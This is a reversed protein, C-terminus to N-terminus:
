NSVKQSESGLAECAMKVAILPLNERAKERKIIRRAWDRNGVSKQKQTLGSVADEVAEHSVRSQPPSPLAPARKPVPQWEGKELEAALVKRWRRELSEWSGNRMDFAGITVASWFVAPHSWADTGGERKAMQEIAEHFAEEADLPPRCMERFEPLTPPFKAARCAFVGRAIEEGTLDGLDNAWSQKVRDRPFAGYRQAWLDGYRDEMRQFYANSGASM